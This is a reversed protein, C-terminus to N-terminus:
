CSRRLDYPEEESDEERTKVPWLLGTNLDLYVLTGKSIHCGAKFSTLGSRKPMPPRDGGPREKICTSEKAPRFHMPTYRRKGTACLFGMIVAFLQGILLIGISISASTSM